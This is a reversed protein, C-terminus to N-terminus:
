EGGYEEEDWDAMYELADLPASPNSAVCSRVVADAAESLEQLLDKPTNPNFAIGRVIDDYDDGLSESTLDLDTLSLFLKTLTDASANPNRAIAELEYSSHPGSIMNELVSAPTNPNEALSGRVFSEPDYQYAELLVPDPTHAAVCARSLYDLDFPDLTEWFETAKVYKKM